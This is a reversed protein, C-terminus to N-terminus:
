KWLREREEGAAVTAIAQYTEDKVEVTVEPHAVLNHIGTRISRQVPM